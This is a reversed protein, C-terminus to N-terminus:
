WFFCFSIRYNGGELGNVAVINSFVTFGPHLGETIGALLCVNIRTQNNIFINIM